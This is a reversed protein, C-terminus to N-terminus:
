VSEPVNRTALFQEYTEGRMHAGMRYLGYGTLAGLKILYYINGGAELLGTFDRERVMARESEALAFRDMFGEEDSKFSEREEAKSLANCMTNIRLGRWSMRLDFVLAGSIRTGPQLQSDNQKRIM